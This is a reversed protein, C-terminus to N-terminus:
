LLPNRILSADQAEVTTTANSLYHLVASYVVRMNELTEAESEITSKYVTNFTSQSKELKQSLKRYRAIDTALSGNVITQLASIKPRILLPSINLRSIM